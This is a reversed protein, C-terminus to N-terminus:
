NEFYIKLIGESLMSLLRHILFRHINCGIDCLNFMPPFNKRWFGHDVVSLVRYSLQYPEDCRMSRNKHHHAPQCHLFALIKLMKFFHQVEVGSKKVDYSSISNSNPCVSCVVISSSCVRLLHIHNIFKGYFHTPEQMRSVTLKKCNFIQCLRILDYSRM